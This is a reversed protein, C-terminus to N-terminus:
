RVLSRRVRRRVVSLTSPGVHPRGVLAHQLHLVQVPHVGAAALRDAALAAAVAVTTAGSVTHYTMRGDRSLAIPVGDWEYESVMKGIDHLLAGVILADHDIFEAVPACHTAIGLSLEAVEVSHQLLGHIYAHHMALAAPCHFFARRGVYDLVTDLLTLATPSLSATLAAFRAELRELPEPCIPNLELAVPHGAPLAEVRSIELEPAGGKYGTKVTGTILLPTGPHLHEWPAMKEQWVTATIAGSRNRLTLTLFPKGASTVRTERQRLCVTGTVTRGIVPAHLDLPESLVSSM